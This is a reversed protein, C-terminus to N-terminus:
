QLTLLFDLVDYRFDALLIEVEIGEELYSVVELLHDVEALLHVVREVLAFLVVVVDLLDITQQITLHFIFLSFNISVYM